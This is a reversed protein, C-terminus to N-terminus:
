SKDVHFGARIFRMPDRQEGNFLVEYHLHPGTSRGTSGMEGIIDGAKVEQGRRVALKSMHGYRTHFGMGHDIEVTKGYRGKWGVFSVRGPATARIASGLPATFDLGYHMAPRGNFPDTRSGFGSVVDYNAMPVALPMAKLIQQLTEWRDLKKADAAGPSSPAANASSSTDSRLPVFPGGRGTKQSALDRLIRDVDLGSLRIAREAKGINIAANDALRSLLGNQTAQLAALRQELDGVRVALHEQGKLPSPAQATRATRPETQLGALSSKLRTGRGEFARLAAELSQLQREIADQLAALRARDEVDSERLRARAAAADDQLDRSQEVLKAVAGADSELGQAIAEVKEHYESLSSLLFRHSAQSEALAVSLEDVRHGQLISALGAILVIALGFFGAAAFALQRRPSFQVYRVRDRERVFVQRERPALRGLVRHRANRIQSLWIQSLRSVRPM